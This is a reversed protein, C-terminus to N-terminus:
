LWGSKPKRKITTVDEIKNSPRLYTSTQNPQAAEPSSPILRELSNSSNPEGMGLGITLQPSDRKNIPLNQEKENKEELTDQTKTNPQVPETKREPLPTPPITAVSPVIFSPATSQDESKGPPPPLMGPGSTSLKGVPRSISIDMPVPAKRKFVKMASSAPMLEIDLINDASQQKKIIKMTSSPTDINIVPPPSQPPTNDFKREEVPSTVASANRSTSKVSERDDEYPQPPPSQIGNYAPIPTLRGRNEPPSTLRTGYPSNGPKPSRSNPMLSDRKCLPNPSPTKSLMLIADQLKAGLHMTPSPSAKRSLITTNVPSMGSVEEKINKLLQLLTESTPNNLEIPSCSRSSPLPSRMILRRAEEMARQLNQQNKFSDRNRCRGIQTGPEIGARRIVENWRGTSTEAAVRKAVRRFRALPKEQEVPEEENDEDLEVPAVHFDKMLRREWIKM